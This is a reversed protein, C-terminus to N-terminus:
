GVQWSIWSTRNDHSSLLLLLMQVTWLGSDLSDELLVDVLCWDMVTVEHWVGFDYGSMVDTPTTVGMPSTEARWTAFGPRLEDRWTTTCNEATQLDKGEERGLNKEKGKFTFFLASRSWRFDRLVCSWINRNERWKILGLWFKQCYSQCAWWEHM